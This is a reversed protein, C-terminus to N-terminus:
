KNRGRDLVPKNMAVQSKDGRQRNETVYDTIIDILFCM